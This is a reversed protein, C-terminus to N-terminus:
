DDEMHFLKLTLLKDTNKKIFERADTEEDFRAKLNIWKWICNEGEGMEDKLVMFRISWKNDKILWTPATISGVQKGDHKIITSANPSGIGALGTQRKEKKFTFKMIAGADSNAESCEIMGCFPEFLLILM